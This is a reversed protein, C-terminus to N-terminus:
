ACARVCVVCVLQDLDGEATVAAETCDGTCAACVDLWKTVDVIKSM